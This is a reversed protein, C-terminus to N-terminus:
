LGEKPSTFVPKIGRLLSLIPFMLHGNLKSTPQSNRAGIRNTNPGEVIFYTPISIHNHSTWLSWQNGTNPIIVLKSRLIVMNLTQIFVLVPIMVRPSWLRRLDNHTGVSCRKSILESEIFHLFAWVSWIGSIKGWKPSKFYCTCKVIFGINSMNELNIVIMFASSIRELWYPLKNRSERLPQFCLSKHQTWLQDIRNCSLIVPRSRNIRVRNIRLVM